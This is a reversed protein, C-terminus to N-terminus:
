NIKNLTQLQPRGAYCSILWKCKEQGKANAPVFVVDGGARALGHGLPVHEGAQADGVDELCEQLLEVFFCDLAIADALM